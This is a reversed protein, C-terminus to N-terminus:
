PSPSPRSLNHAIHVYQDIEDKPDVDEQIKYTPAEQQETAAHQPAYSATQKSGRARGSFLARCAQSAKVTDQAQPLHRCLPNEQLLWDWVPAQRTGKAGSQDKNARGKGQNAELGHCGASKDFHLSGCKRSLCDKSARAVLKHRTGAMSQQCAQRGSTMVNHCCSTM